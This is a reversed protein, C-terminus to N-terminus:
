TRGKRLASLVKPTLNSFVNNVKVDFRILVAVANSLMWELFENKPANTFNRFDIMLSRWTQGDAQFLEAGLLRFKM